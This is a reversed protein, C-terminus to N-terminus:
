REGMKLLYSPILSTFFPLPPPPPPPFCHRLSQFVVYPCLFSNVHSYPPLYTPLYKYMNCVYISQLSQSFRCYLVGGGDLGIWDWGDKGGRGRGRVCFFFFFWFSVSFAGVGGERHYTDLSICASFFFLIYDKKM